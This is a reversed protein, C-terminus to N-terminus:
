STCVSSAVKDQRYAYFCDEDPFSLVHVEQYADGQGQTKFASLLRGRYQQMITLARQEYDKFCELNKVDLIAVIQLM